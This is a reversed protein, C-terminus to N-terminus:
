KKITGWLSSVLVPLSSDRVIYKLCRLLHLLLVEDVVKKDLESHTEVSPSDGYLTEEVDVCDIVDSRERGVSGKDYDEDNDDCNEDDSECESHAETEEDSRHDCQSGDGTVVKLSSFGENPVSRQGSATKWLADGFMHVVRTAMGQLHTFEPTDDLESVGVAFSCRNNRVRISVKEGKQISSDITYIGPTM